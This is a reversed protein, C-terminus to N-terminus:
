NDYNDDYKTAHQAASSQPRRVHPRRIKRRTSRRAAKSQAHDESKLNLHKNEVKREVDRSSKSARPAFKLARPAIPLHQKHDESKLDESREDRAAGRQRNQAHTESKLNLHKNELKREVDRSSKSARPTFKVRSLNKNDVKREVDRSSKPARPRVDASKSRDQLRKPRM